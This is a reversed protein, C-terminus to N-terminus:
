STSIICIPLTKMTSALDLWWNSSFSPTPLHVLLLFFVWTQKGKLVCPKIARTCITYAFQSGFNAPTNWQYAVSKGWRESYLEHDFNKFNFYHLGAFMNLM